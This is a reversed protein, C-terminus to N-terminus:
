RVKFLFYAAGCCMFLMFALTMARNERKIAFYGLVLVLLTLPTAAITIYRQVDDLLWVCSTSM